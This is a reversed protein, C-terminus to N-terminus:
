EQVILKHLVHFLDFPKFPKGIFGDMGVQMCEQMDSSLANATLAVIYAHRGEDLLELQRIKRTSELGDMVPMQLDMLILHYRNKKYKEVAELGNSAVDVQCGTQLLTFKTIKQNILKDEVLLVRFNKLIKRVEHEMNKEADKSSETTPMGLQVTFWFSSGKDPQSLFNIEGGMMETLKKSIALGLGTGKYQKTFSSDIQSFSTFLKEKEKKNIGIGSDKVTFKVIGNEAQRNKLTTVTVRVFGQSTFKLANDILNKLIEHIKKKDGIFNQPLERDYQLEFALNKEKAIKGFETKVNQLFAHMDFREKQLKMKGTEIASYEFIDNILALLEDGSHLLTSIYEEQAKDTKTKKLIEAMGIIANLPTRIEHSMNNLFESKVRVGEEALEKAQKLEQQYRKQETVDWSVGILGIISGKSNVVPALNTNVSLRKDGQIMLEEINYYSIGNEICDKEKSAYEKDPKYKPFIETLNKGIVAEQKLQAFDTFAKNVLQYRFQKDKFFVFAPITNLLINLEDARKELEQLANKLNSSTKSLLSSLVNKDKLLREIKFNQIDAEMKLKELGSLLDIKIHELNSEKRLNETQQILSDIIKQM